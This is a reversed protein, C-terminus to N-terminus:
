QIRHVGRKHGQEDKHSDTKKRTAIMGLSIKVAKEQCIKNVYEREQESLM